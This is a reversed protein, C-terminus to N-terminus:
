GLFWGNGVRFGALWGILWGVWMLVRLFAYSVLGGFGLNEPFGAFLGRFGSDVCCVDVRGGLGGVVLWGM